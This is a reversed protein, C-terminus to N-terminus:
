PSTFTSDTPAFDETDSGSISMTLDGEIRIADYFSCQDSEINSSKSENMYDRNNDDDDNNSNTNNNTNNLTNTNNTNRRNNGNHASTEDYKSDSDHDVYISDSVSSEGFGNFSTGFNDGNISNKLKNPFEAGNGPRFFLGPGVGLHSGVPKLSLSRIERMIARAEDGESGAKDM